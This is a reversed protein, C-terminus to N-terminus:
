RIKYLSVLPGCLMCLKVLLQKMFFDANLTAPVENHDHFERELAYKNVRALIWSARPRSPDSSSYEIREDSQGVDFCVIKCKERTQGSTLIADFVTVLDICSVHLNIVIKELVAKLRFFNAENLEM